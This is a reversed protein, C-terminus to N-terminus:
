MCNLSVELKYDGLRGLATTAPTHTGAWAAARHPPDWPLSGPEQHCVGPLGSVTDRDTRAEIIGHVQDGLLQLEQPRHREDANEETVDQAPLQQLM